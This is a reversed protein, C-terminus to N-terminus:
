RVVFTTRMGLEDHDGQDGDNPCYLVYTGPALTMTLTRSQGRPVDGEIEWEDEQGEVELDHQVQGNNTVEFTIQGAPMETPSVAISWESLTVRVLEDALAAATVTDVADPQMAEQVATTAMEDQVNDGGCAATAALLVVWGRRCAMANM